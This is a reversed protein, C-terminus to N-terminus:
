PKRAAGANNAPQADFETNTSNAPPAPRDPMYLPSKQGCASLGISFIMALICSQQRM